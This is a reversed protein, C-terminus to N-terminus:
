AEKVSIYNRAPVVINESVYETEGYNVYVTIGNDFVTKRVNENIIIHDAIKAGDVSAFYDKYSDVTEIIDDRVGRNIMEDWYVSGYFVNQASTILNTNYKNILTYTLGLGTEASKLLTDVKNTALNLSSGSMSVKGKFVIEYFPIDISYSRYKSSQMPVDYVHTCLGAAFANADSGAVKYGSNKFANIIANAQDDFNAGSYYEREVYDSYVMSTLTDLSVGQLKWEDAANKVNNAIESLKSRTALYYPSLTTSNTRFV